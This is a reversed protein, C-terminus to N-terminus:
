TEEGILHIEHQGDPSKTCEYEKTKPLRTYEQNCYMCRWITTRKSKKNTKLQVKWPKTKSTNQTQTSNNLHNLSKSVKKQMRPATKPKKLTKGPV